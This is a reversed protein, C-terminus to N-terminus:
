PSSSSSAPRASPPPPTTRAPASASAWDCGRRARGPAPRRGLGAVRRGAALGVRLEEVVPLAGVGAQGLQFRPAVPAATPASGAGGARGSCTVVGIPPTSTAAPRRPRRQTNGSTAASRRDLAPSITRMLGAYLPEPRLGAASRAATDDFTVMLENYAALQWRRAPTSDPTQAGAGADAAPAVLRGLAPEALATRAAPAVPRRGAARRGAADALLQQWIRQEHRMRPRVAAAGLRLRAVGLGASPRGARHRRPRDGPRAGLRRRLALSCKSTPGGTASAASRWPRSWLNAM